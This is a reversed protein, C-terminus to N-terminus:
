RSGRPQGRMAQGHCSNTCYRRRTVEAPTELKGSPQRKRTLLAGCHACFRQPIPQYPNHEQGHETPTLCALNDPANNAKNEDRHHIEHGGPIPGFHKEWVVHHLWRRHGDGVTQRYYGDHDLTYPIGDYEITPLFVKTRLALRRRGFMEYVSQRSVGFVKGVQELSYGSQYLTYM